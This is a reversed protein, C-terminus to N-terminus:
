ISITDGTQAMRIRDGLAQQMQWTAQLGTCHLPIITQIESQDFYAITREMREPSAQELHMGGIVAHIPRNPYISRVYELSNVIGPHSCGVVVIL